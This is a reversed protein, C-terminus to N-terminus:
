VDIDLSTEPLGAPVYPVTIGLREALARARSLLPHAEGLAPHGHALVTRDLVPVLLRAARSADGRAACRLAEDYQATLIM